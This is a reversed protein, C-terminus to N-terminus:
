FDHSNELSYRILNHERPLNLAVHPEFFVSTMDNLQKIHNTRKKTATPTVLNRM